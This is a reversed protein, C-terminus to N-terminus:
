EEAAEELSDAADELEEASETIENAAQQLEAVAQVNAGVTTAINNMSDAIETSYEASYKAMEQAAANWEQVAANFDEYSDFQDAAEPTAIKEATAKFDSWAKAAEPSMTQGCSVVLMAVAAIAVFMIKKMKSERKKTLYIFSSERHKLKPHLIVSKGFVNNEKKLYFINFSIIEISKAV